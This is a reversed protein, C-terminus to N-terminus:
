HRIILFFQAFAGALIAVVGVLRRPAKALDAFTRPQQQDCLALWWGASYLARMLWLPNIGDVAAMVLLAIIYFVGAIRGAHLWGDSTHFFGM